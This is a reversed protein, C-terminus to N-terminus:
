CRRRHAGQWLALEVSFGDDAEGASASARLLKRLLVDDSDVQTERAADYYAQRLIRQTACPRSTSFPAASPFRQMVVRLLKVGRRLGQGRRLLAVSQTRSTPVELTTHRMALSIGASGDSMSRPRVWRTRMRPMPWWRERPRLPPAITSMSSASSAMRMGDVGGLAHRAQLGFADDDVDRAAPGTRLVEASMDVDASPRDAFVFDMPHEFGGRGVRRPLSTRHQMGQRGAKRQVIRAGDAIRAVHDACLKARVHM